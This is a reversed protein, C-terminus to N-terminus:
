DNLHDLDDFHNLYHNICDFKIPYEILNSMLRSRKIMIKVILQCYIGILGDLHNICDFKIPYEISNSM